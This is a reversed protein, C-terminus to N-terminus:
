LMLGTTGTTNYKMFMRILFEFNINRLMSWHLPDETHISPM